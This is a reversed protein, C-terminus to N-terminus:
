IVLRYVRIMSLTLIVFWISNSNKKEELGSNNYCKCVFNCQQDVNM